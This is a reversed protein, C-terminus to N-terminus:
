NNNIEVKKQSYILIEIKEGFIKSQLNVVSRVFERFIM